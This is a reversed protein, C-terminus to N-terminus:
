KEIDEKLCEGLMVLDVIFNNKVLFKIISFINIRNGQNKPFPSVITLFLIRKEIM